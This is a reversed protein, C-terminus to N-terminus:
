DVMTMYISWGANTILALKIAYETYVHSLPKLLGQSVCAKFQVIKVFLLRVFPGLVFIQMSYAFVFNYMINQLLLFLNFQQIGVNRIFVYSTMIPAMILTMFFPTLLIRYLPKNQPIHKHVFRPAVKGAFLFALPFAVALENWYAHAKPIILTWEFIQAHLLANYASMFFVMLSAMILTFIFSELFTKPM